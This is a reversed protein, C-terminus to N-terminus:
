ETPEVEKAKSRKTQESTIRIINVINERPSCHLEYTLRVDDEVLTYRHRLKTREFTKGQSDLFEHVLRDCLNSGLVTISISSLFENTFKYSINFSGNLHSNTYVSFFSMSEEHQQLKLKILEPYKSLSSGLEYKGLDVGLSNTTFTLLPSNTPAGTLRGVCCCSILISLAVIWRKM